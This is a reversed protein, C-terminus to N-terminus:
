GWCQIALAWVGAVKDLSFFDRFYTPTCYFRSPGLLSGSLHQLRFFVPEQLFRTLNDTCCRLYSSPAGNRSLLRGGGWYNSFNSGCWVLPFWLSTEQWLFAIWVAFGLIKNNQVVNPHGTIFPAEKLCHDVGRAPHDAPDKDVGRHRDECVWILLCVCVCVCNDEQSVFCLAVCDATRRAKSHWM